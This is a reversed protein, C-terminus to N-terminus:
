NQIERWEPQYLRNLGKAISKSTNSSQPFEALFSDVMQIGSLTPFVCANISQSNLADMCMTQVGMAIQGYGGDLAAAQLERNNEADDPANLFGQNIAGVEGDSNLFPSGSNGFTVPCNGFTLISSNAGKFNPALYTGYAAECEIKDQVGGYQNNAVDSVMQVRLLTAIEHDQFGRKSLTAAKRDTVPAELKIIAYDETGLGNEGSRTEISSCGLTQEKAGNGDATFHVFVYDKCPLNAMEKHGNLLTADNICHDNTLVENSSILVGSCRELGKPTVTSILVLEARCADGSCTLHGNQAALQVDSLQNVLSSPKSNDPTPTALDSPVLPAQDPKIEPMPSIDDVQGHNQAAAKSAVSVVPTHSQNGCATVLLFLASIALSNKRLIM